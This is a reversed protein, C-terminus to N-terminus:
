SSTTSLVPEAPIKWQTLPRGDLLASVERLWMRRFTVVKADTTGLHEQARGAISGQGVQTVYDEIAFSTYPSIDAPLDELTGEGALIKQAATFDTAVEAKQQEERSAAYVRADEGQLPTHTVDFAVCNADNIPVTWVFKTDWLGRNEFGKARVRSWNQFVYPMFMRAIGDPRQVPMVEGKVYRTSKLGYPTEEATERKLVFADTRGMRAQSARHVWPVHPHDNDLRNWFSCPLFEAPDAIIVGPQDLEAFRPFEPPADTGLFAFILGAYERTPYSPMKINAAFPKDECPQEVCQGSPDFRWGHYRCRLDNGEVWGVSLQTGRHPCGFAVVHPTGTEGRYLTFKEGLIEIPRARGPLLDRVRCVPHWFLRLYRGAPTGPGVAELDKFQLTTEVPM